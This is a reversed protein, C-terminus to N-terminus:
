NFEDLSVHTASPTIGIRSSLTVIISDLIMAAVGRNFYRVVTILHAFLSVHTSSAAV